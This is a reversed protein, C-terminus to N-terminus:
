GNLYSIRYLLLKFSSSVNSFTIISPLTSLIGISTLNLPLKFLSFMLSAVFSPTTPTDINLLANRFGLKFIPVLIIAIPLYSLCLFINVALSILNPDSDFM